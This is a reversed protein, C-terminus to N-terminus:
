VKRFTIAISAYLLSPYFKRLWAYRGRSTHSIPILGFQRCLRILERLTFYHLHQGDWGKERSFPYQQAGTRPVNGRLLGIIHKIYAANPTEVIAYKGPKIVRAIEEVAGFVDFLHELTMFSTVVDFSEDTFPLRDKDMDHIYFEANEIKEWWRGYNGIDIGACKDFRNRIARILHGAQCGIDLYNGGLSPLREILSVMFSVGTIQLAVTKKQNIASNTWDSTRANIDQYFELAKM